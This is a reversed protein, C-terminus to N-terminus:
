LVLSLHPFFYVSPLNPFEKGGLGKLISDLHLAWSASSLAHGHLAKYLRACPDKIHKKDDPALEPPLMVYTHTPSKLESQVYAKIADSVSM